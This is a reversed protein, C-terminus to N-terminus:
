CPRPAGREDAIVAALTPADVRGLIVTRNVVLAPTGPFGFIRALARARELARAVPPAAMDRALRDPDLGAQGAIRDLARPTVSLATGMLAANLAGFADQGRAALAARAALESARGFLPTFHHSIRLGERPALRALLDSLTRCYPCYHDTFYAAPVEGAGAGAYFLAGCLDARVAAMAAPPIGPGPDIGALADRAGGRSLGDGADIRRFGDVPAYDSYRPGRLRSVLGPALQFGAVLAAAGAGATLVGRRTAM